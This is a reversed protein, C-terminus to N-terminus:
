YANPPTSGTAAPAATVIVEGTDSASMHNHYNWTGAKAFAFTYSGGSAVAACEDFPAPGSYGAACHQDKSTGDYAEHTPHVASAVWMRNSSRNVFTVSQGEAVTVSAPSFGRDTYTVIAPALPMNAMAAMGSSTAEGTQMPVPKVPHSYVYWGGGAVIIVLVLAGLWRSNM